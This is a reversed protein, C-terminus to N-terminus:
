KDLLITRSANSFLRILCNILNLLIFLSTLKESLVLNSKKIEFLVKFFNNSIIQDPYMLYFYSNDHITKLFKKILHSHTEYKNGQFYYDTLFIKNIFPLHNKNELKEVIYKPYTKFRNQLRMRAVYNPNISAWSSTSMESIAKVKSVQDDLKSM